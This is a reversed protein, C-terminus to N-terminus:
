AVIEGEVLAVVDIEIMAEPSVFRKVEVITGAPYPFSLYERKIRIWHEVQNLETVYTTTKVIKNLSSGAAELIRRV